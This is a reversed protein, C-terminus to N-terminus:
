REGTGRTSASPTGGAQQLALGAEARKRAQKSRALGLQGAMGFALASSRRRSNGEGVSTTRTATFRGSRWVATPRPGGLAVSCRQTIIRGATLAPSRRILVGPCRESRGARDAVADVDDVVVHVHRLSPEWDAHSCSRSAHRLSRLAPMQVTAPYCGIGMKGTLVDGVVTVGRLVLTNLNKVAM